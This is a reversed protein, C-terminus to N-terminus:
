TRNPLTQGMANCSPSAFGMISLSTAWYSLNNPLALWSTHLSATCSMRASIGGSSIGKLKLYFFSPTFIVLSNFAWSYRKLVSHFGLLSINNRKSFIFYLILICYCIFLRYYRSKKTFIQSAYIM